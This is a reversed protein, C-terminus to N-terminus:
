KITAPDEPGLVIKKKEIAVALLEVAEDYRSMLNLTGALNTMTNLTNIGNEGYLVKEKELCSRFLEAADSYKGQRSLVGAYNCKLCLLKKDLDKASEPASKSLAIARKFHADSKYYDGM